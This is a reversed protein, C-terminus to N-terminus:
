HATEGETASFSHIVPQSFCHDGGLVPNSVLGPTCSVKEWDPEYKTLAAQCFNVGSAGCSDFDFSITFAGEISDEIEQCPQGVPVGHCALTNNNGSNTNIGSILIGLKQVENVRDVSVEVKQIEPINDGSTRILQIEDIDQGIISILQEEDSDIASLMISQVEAQVDGCTTTVMQIEDSGIVSTGVSQIVNTVEVTTILSQVEIDINPSEVTLTQMERTIPLDIRRPHLFAENTDYEVIFKEIRNGGDFGLIDWQVSLL